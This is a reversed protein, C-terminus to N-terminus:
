YLCNVATKTKKRNKQLSSVYEVRLCAAVCFRELLRQEYHSGATTHIIIVRLWHSGDTTDIIIIWPWHSGATTDITIILTVRRVQHHRLVLLHLVVADHGDAGVQSADYGPVLRLVLEDARAVAGLVVGGSLYELRSKPM